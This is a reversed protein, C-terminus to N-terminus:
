EINVEIDINDRGWHEYFDRFHLHGTSHEALHKEVEGFFRCLASIEAKTGYIMGLKGTSEPEDDDEDSHKKALYIKM